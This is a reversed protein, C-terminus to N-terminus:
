KLHIRVLDRHQILTSSISHELDLSKQLIKDEVEKTLHIENFQAIQLMRLNLLDLNDASQRQALHSLMIVREKQLKFADYDITIQDKHLQLCADIEAQKATSRTKSWTKLNMSTLFLM